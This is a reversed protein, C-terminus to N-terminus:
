ILKSIQKTARIRGWIVVLSGAIGVLNDVADTASDVDSPTIGTVACVIIVVIAAWVTVSKIAPKGILPPDLEKNM